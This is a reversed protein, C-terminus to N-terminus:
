GGEAGTKTRADAEDSSDLWSCTLVPVCSCSMLLLPATSSKQFFRSQFSWAKDAGTALVDLDDSQPGGDAVVVFPSETSLTAVLRGSEPIM